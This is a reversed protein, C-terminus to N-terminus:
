VSHASLSKLLDAPACQSLRPRKAVRDRRLAAGVLFRPRRHSRGQTAFPPCLGGRRDTVNDDRWQRLRGALEIDCPWGAHGAQKYQQEGQDRKRGQGLGHVHTRLAGVGDARGQQWRQHLPLQVRLLGGGDLLLGALPGVLGHDGCAIRMALGHTDVDGCVTGAGAEDGEATALGVQCGGRPRDVVAFYALQPGQAVQACGSGLLDDAQIANRNDDVGVVRHRLEASLLQRLNEGPLDLAPLLQTNSAAGDVQVGTVVAGAGELRELRQHQLGLM